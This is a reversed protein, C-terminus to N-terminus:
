EDEDIKEEIIARKSELQEENENGILPKSLEKSMINKNLWPALLKHSLYATKLKSVSM